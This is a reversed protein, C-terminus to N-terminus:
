VNVDFCQGEALNPRHRAWPPERVVSSVLWGFMFLLRVISFKMIVCSAVSKSIRTANIRDGYIVM